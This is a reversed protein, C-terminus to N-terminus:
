LILCSNKGILYKKYMYMYVQGGFTAGEDPWIESASFVYM